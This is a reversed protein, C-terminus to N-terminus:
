RLDIKININQSVFDFDVVYYHMNAFDFNYEGGKLVLFSSGNEFIYKNHAKIVIKELNKLGEQLSFSVWKNTYSINNGNDEGQSLAFQTLSQLIPPASLPRISM